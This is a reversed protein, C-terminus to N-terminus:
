AQPISATPNASFQGALRIARRNLRKDGLDIGDFEM